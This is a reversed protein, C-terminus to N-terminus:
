ELVMEEQPNNDCLQNTFMLRTAEMKNEIDLGTESIHSDYSLIKERLMSSFYGAPDYGDVNDLISNMKQSIAKGALLEEKTIKNDATTLQLPYLTDQYDEEIVEQLKEVDVGVERLYGMYTKVEPEELLAPLIADDPIEKGTFVRKERNCTNAM